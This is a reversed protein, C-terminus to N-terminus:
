EKRDVDIEVITGDEARAFHRLFDWAYRANCSHPIHDAGEVLILEALPQSYDPHHYYGARHLEAGGQGRGQEGRPAAIPPNVAAQLLQNLNAAGVVGRQMPTLVQIDRAAVKFYRPLRKAVLEVILEAAKEPEALEQFFFDTGRNNSLVPFEGHNIRHTNTIIRSSAAQRFIRTM